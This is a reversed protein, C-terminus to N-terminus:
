FVSGHSVNRKNTQTHGTQQPLGMMSYRSQSLPSKDTNKLAADGTGLITDPLAIWLLYINVLSCYSSGMTWLLFCAGQSSIQDQILYCQLYPHMGGTM